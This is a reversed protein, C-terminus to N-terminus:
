WPAAMGRALQATGLEVGSPLKCTALTRRYSDAGASRCALPPGAVIIHGGRMTGRAGGLLAVLSDRAATGSAAPCPHGRRCTNDLERTAIGKLRIREGEKCWIPGDGDSVAVATCTFSTGKAPM